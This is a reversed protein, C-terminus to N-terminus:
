SRRISDVRHRLTTTASAPIDNVSPLGVSAQAGASPGTMGNSVSAGGTVLSKSMPANSEWVDIWNLVHDRSFLRRDNVGGVPTFGLGAISDTM